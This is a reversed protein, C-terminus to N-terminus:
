RKVLESLLQEYIPLIKEGRFAMARAFGKHSYERALTKDRLLKVVAESLAMESATLPENAGRFEGDLRPLLIGYEALEMVESNDDFHSQPALIERPGSRVDTSVVPLGLALSELVVNGFGEWLSSLVFVDARKM